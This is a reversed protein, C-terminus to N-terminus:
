GRLPLRAPVLGPCAGSGALLDPGRSRGRGLADDAAGLARYTRKRTEPDYARAIWTGGERGLRRYGVHRGPGLKAWYPERRALLKLRASRTDLKQDRVTRAVLRERPYTLRVAFM